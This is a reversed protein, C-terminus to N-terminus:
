KLQSRLILEALETLQNKIKDDLPWGCNVRICDNYLDLTTFNAGLRLDINAAAVLVTFTKHCFNNLQIWLVMGGEPASIATDSPFLKLILNRYEQVQQRLTLRLIKLHKTYQGTNIFDAIAAQAHSNIGLRATSSARNYAQIFRGPLCWGVRLAASLTKSISNCWMIYGNKDWYKAPLPPVKAHSLEFYVDDEIVPTKYQNALVALRKKQEISLSIGQPNMHSTSFLGAQVSHRKLHWEFQDLDIGEPLCPIEIVQRNLEYLLDIIGNFCPSSIAVADGAKTTTELCFRIADICGNTVVLEDAQFPFGYQLFQHSVAKRLNVLGKAEPYFHIDNGLQNAARKMSRKFAEYPIHCPALQSVGLPGPKANLELPHNDNPAIAKSSFQPMTPLTTEVFPMTVFFGSQPKALLWGGEELLHFANQATTLSVKNLNAMKRLSPMRSGKALKGNQIDEIVQEAIQKYRM